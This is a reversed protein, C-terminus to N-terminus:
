AIPKIYEGVKRNFEDRDTEHYVTTDSATYLFVRKNVQGCINSKLCYNDKGNNILLSDLEKLVDELTCKPYYYKCLRFIDGGSRRRGRQCQQEETDVHVSEIETSNNYDRLFRKIFDKLSVGKLDKKFFPKLRILGEKLLDKEFEKLSTRSGKNQTTIDM